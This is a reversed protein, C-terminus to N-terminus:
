GDTPESTGHRAREQKHQVIKQLLELEQDVDLRGNRLVSLDAQTRREIERQRFRRILHELLAAPNAMGKARGKEDLEVLLSQVAPDDFELMLREFSPTQGADALRCCARYIERCAESALQEPAIESRVLAVGQPFQLLIELLERQCPDMGARPDRPAAGETTVQAPREYAPRGGSRRLATLRSRVEQEPVRFSASLRQLIKEERFRSEATSDARLRPAKAVIAVLRELAQSAAHVDNVLDIGETFSRFAHELGDVAHRELQDRFADPGHELLFECPDLEGPLTLVRLDANQSVFLELVENTRRKGAEDGDLVLVIRDVFRKLIQIHREGLATGLVAVADTFGFQHAIITDTYGEMVLATRSKRMTERAVDLGYLLHSKSFLPTEPSNIYKAPSTSGSEPLVRGGLGVPRDQPDRISFLVRGRFRDFLRGGEQSRVLLGVTELDVSKIGVAQGRRLLWDWRNPSYGLHFKAISEPTLGREALYRRAPEAEEDRLLCEHYQKEAWAMVRYLRRKGDNAGGGPASSASAGGYAMGPPASHHAPPKLPIGAQDALMALAEPFSVGELKMVFSFVDGGIDCVWCKFSQREPNIQLSPRSDDHWPCLAVYNRGQRRLQVYKSALEVIDIAQKIQEKVELPSYASLTRERQTSVRSMWEVVASVPRCSGKGIDRELPPRLGGLGAVSAPVM